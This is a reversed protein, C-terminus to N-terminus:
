GRKPCIVAEISSTLWLLPHDGKTNTPKHVETETVTALSMLLYNKELMKSASYVATIENLFCNLSHFAIWDVQVRGDGKERKVYLVKSHPLGVGLLKLEQM